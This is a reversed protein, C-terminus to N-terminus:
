LIFPSFFRLLIEFGCLHNRFIFHGMNAYIDPGGFQIYINNIKFTETKEPLFPQIERGGM